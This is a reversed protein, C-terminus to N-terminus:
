LTNPDDSLGFEVVFAHGDPAAAKEDSFFPRMELHGTKSTRLPALKRVLALDKYRYTSSDTEVGSHPFPRTRVLTVGMWNKLRQWTGRPNVQLVIAKPGM